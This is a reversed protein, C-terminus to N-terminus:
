DSAAHALASPTQRGLIAPAEPHARRELAEVMFPAFDVRRTLNSELIPDGAHRSWMPLGRSEGEELDNGRVVTWRTDRAFVRRCATTSIRSALAAGPDRRNSVARGMTHQGPTRLAREVDSANPCRFLRPHVAGGKLRREHRVRARAYWPDFLPALRNEGRAPRIAANASALRPM